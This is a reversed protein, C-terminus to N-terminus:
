AVPLEPPRRPAPMPVQVAALRPASTQERRPKAAQTQELAMANLREILALRPYRWSRGIKVGPLKGARTQEMVQQDTCDLLEAVEAVSLIDSM